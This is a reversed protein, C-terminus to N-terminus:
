CQKKDKSGDESKRGALLGVFVIVACRGAAALIRNHVDTCVVSGVAGLGLRLIRGVAGNGAGLSRGGTYLSVGALLAIDAGVSDDLGAVVGCDSGCLM